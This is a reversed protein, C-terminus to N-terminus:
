KKEGEKKRGEPCCLLGDTKADEIAACAGRPRSSTLVTSDLRTVCTLDDTSPPRSADPATPPKTTTLNIYSSRGCHLVTSSASTTTPHHHTAQSHSLPAPRSKIALGLFDVSNLLEQSRHLM